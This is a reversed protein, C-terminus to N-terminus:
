EPDYPRLEEPHEAIYRLLRSKKERGRHPTELRSTPREPLLAPAIESVREYISEWRKKVTALSISLELAIESDSWQRAALTLIQQEHIKFRFVPPTYAFYRSVWAGPNNIAEERTVGFLLPHDFRSSGAAIGSGSASLIHVGTSTYFELDDQYRVPCTIARLNYGLHLFDFPPGLSQRVPHSFETHRVDPRLSGATFLILGRANEKAIDRPRLVATRDELAVTAFLCDLQNGPCNRLRQLFDCSIFMSVGYALAVSSGSSVGVSIAGCLAADRYLVSVAEAWRRYTPGDGFDANFLDFVHLDDRRLVRGSIRSFKAAYGRAIPQSM